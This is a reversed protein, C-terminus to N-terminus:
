WGFRERLDPSLRDASWATDWDMDVAIETERACVQRVAEAADEQLMASMPCTASTPLLTVRVRGPGVEIANVMGLDVISEGLEPDIVERLAHRIRSVDPVEPPTTSADAM